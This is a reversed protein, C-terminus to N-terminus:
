NKIQNIYIYIYIFLIFYVSGFVVKYKCDFGTNLYLFFFNLIYGKLITNPDSLVYNTVSLDLM